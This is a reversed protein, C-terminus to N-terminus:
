RGANWKKMSNLIATYKAKVEKAGMARVEEPSYYEESACTQMSGSSRQANAQNVERAALEWLVRRREHIAYAAALPLGEAVSQWVADPVERASVDPYLGAFEQWEADLREQRQKEERLRRVELRLAALETLDTETLDECVANMDAPKAGTEAEEIRDGAPADVCEAGEEPLTKSAAEAEPTDSVSPMEESVMEFADTDVIEAYSVDKNESRVPQKCRKKNKTM